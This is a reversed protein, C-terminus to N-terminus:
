RYVREVGLEDGYGLTDKKLEGKAGYGYMTLASDRNSYLDGLMIWHGAEHTMINQIDYDDPDGYNTPDAYRSANAVAKTSLNNTINNPSSYNWTFGSGINMQTDVEIIEKSYRYYWISTVAIANPYQSSIDAWSVVNHSDKVGADAGSEGKYVFGLPKDANDWTAFAAKIAAITVNSDIGSDTPNVYYEIATPNAWHVGSYKYDPCLIGGGTAGLSPRGAEHKPYHVFAVKDIPGKGPNDVPTAAMVPVSMLILSVVALMPIWWLKKM